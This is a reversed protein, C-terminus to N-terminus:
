ELESCPRPLRELEVLAKAGREGEPTGYSPHRLGAQALLCGPVMQHLAVARHHPGDGAGVAETGIVRGLDALDGPQPQGLV